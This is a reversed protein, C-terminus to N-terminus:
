DFSRQSVMRQVDQIIALAAETAEEEEKAAKRSLYNTLKSRLKPKDHQKWVSDDFLPKYRGLSDVQALSGKSRSSTSLMSEKEGQSNFSFVQQEEETQSRPTQTGSPIERLRTRLDELYAEFVVSKRLSSLYKKDLADCFRNRLPLFTNRDPEGSPTCISSEISLREASSINLPASAQMSIYREYILMADETAQEPSSRHSENEFTDCSIIFQLQQHEENSSIMELLIQLLPEIHIVDSLTCEGQLVELEHKKFFCSNKFDPYEKTEFLNYIFSQSDKFCDKSPSALNKKVTSVIESPFHICKPSESEFFLNYIAQADNVFDDNKPNNVSDFSSQFSQLHMWFQIIEMKGCSNLYHIFYPLVTQDKLVKDVNYALTM